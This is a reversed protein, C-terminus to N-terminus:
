VLDSHLHVLARIKKENKKLEVTLQTLPMM